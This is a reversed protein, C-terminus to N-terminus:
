YPLLWEQRGTLLNYKYVGARMGEYVINDKIVISFSNSHFGIKWVDKKFLTTIKKNSDVKLLNNSTIVFFNKNSDLTIAYPAFPLELYVKSVWKGGENEINIISGKSM